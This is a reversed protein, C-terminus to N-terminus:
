SQELELLAAKKEIGAAYGILNGDTGIVRHCPILLAIPNRGVAGGVAQASMRTVGRMWALRRALEGYTITQGYPIEALLRWADRQFATGNPRVPITFPPETGSFYLDLWAKTQELIPTARQIADNACLRPAHRQGEFWLGVLADEDAILTMEGLPSQYRSITPM